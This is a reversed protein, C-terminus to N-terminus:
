AKKQKIFKELSSGILAFTVLGLIFTLLPQGFSLTGLLAGLTFFPFFIISYVLSDFVGCFAGVLTTTNDPNSCYAFYEFNASSILAVVMGIIAGTKNSLILGKVSMSRM